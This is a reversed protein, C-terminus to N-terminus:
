APKINGVYMRFGGDDIKILQVLEDKIDGSISKMSRSICAKDEKHARQSLDPAIRCAVIDISLDYVVGSCSRWSQV